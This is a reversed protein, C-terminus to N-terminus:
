KWGVTNGGTDDRGLQVSKLGTRNASGNLRLGHCLCRRFLLQNGSRALALNHGRRGPAVSSAFFDVADSSFPPTFDNVVQVRGPITSTLTPLTFQDIVFEPDGYLTGGAPSPGLPTPDITFTGTLTSFPRAQEVLTDALSTQDEPATIVEATCAYTVAFSPTSLLAAIAAIRLTESTFRQAFFRFRRASGSILSKLANPSVRHTLYKM